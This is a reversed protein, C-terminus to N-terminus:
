QSTLTRVTGAGQKGLEVAGKWQYGAIPVRSADFFSKQGDWAVFETVTVRGGPETVTTKGKSFAGGLAVSTDTKKEGTNPDIAQTHTGM